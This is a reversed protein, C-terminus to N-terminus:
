YSVNRGRKKNANREKVREGISASVFTLNANKTSRPKGIAALLNAIQEKLADNEDQLQDNAAQLHNVQSAMSIRERFIKCSWLKYSASLGLYKSLVNPLLNISVDMFPSMDMSGDTEFFLDIYKMWAISDSNINYYIWNHKIVSWLSDSGEFMIKWVTHNSALINKFSSCDCIAKFLAAVGRPGINNLIGGIKDGTNHNHNLLSLYKLSKNKSLAPSVAEVFEDTIGCKCLDLQRLNPYGNDLLMSVTKVDELILTNGSMNLQKLRKCLRTGTLPSIGDLRCCSINLEKIQSGALSQVLVDLGNMGFKNFSVDVEVLRTFSTVRELVNRVLSRENAMLKGLIDVELLYANTKNQLAIKGFLHHMENDDLGCYSLNLNKVHKNQWLYIGIRMAMRESVFCSINLIGFNPDNHKLRWISHKYLRKLARGQSGDEDDSGFAIEDEDDSFTGGWIVKETLDIFNNM